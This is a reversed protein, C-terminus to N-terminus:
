IDYPLYMEFLDPFYITKITVHEFNWWKMQRALEYEWGRRFTTSVVKIHYFNAIISFVFVVNFNNWTM